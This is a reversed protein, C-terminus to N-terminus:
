RKENLNIGKHRNNESGIFVEMAQGKPFEPIENWMRMTIPPGPLSMWHTIDYMNLGPHTCGQLDEFGKHPTYARCAVAGDGYVLVWEPEDPLKDEVNIWHTKQLILDQEKIRRDKENCIPCSFHSHENM